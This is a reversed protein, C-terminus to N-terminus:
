RLAIGEVMARKPKAARKMKEHLAGQVQIMWDPRPDDPHVGTPMLPRTWRGALYEACDCLHRDKKLPQDPPDEGRAAAAPSLDKWRTQQISEFTQMCDETVVFQGNEILQGLAPIRDDFHSPGLEFRFGARRFQDILRNNTGPDRITTRNPDAIRKAVRLRHEHEIGRWARAHVEAALGPEQYEAIGVLRVRPRREVAVWLGATPDRTGPDMGMWFVTGDPYQPAGTFPDRPYPKIIHRESWSEYIQGAFDDWEALVYRKIWVPPYRLLTSIYEPPLFPNDISTARFWATDGGGEGQVFWKWHWSHGAPNMAMWIGNRTIERAGKARGAGTPERQRLRSTMGIYTDQDIEDAEDIALFGLNISRLQKWDSLSKFMVTSGNPFEVTDIHGATRTIKCQSWFEPPLLDVFVAETSAKLAPIYQRAIMGRIGPQELMWAIAEACLAYTKGSGFGGILLRERARSLHFPRQAPTPEYGIRLAPM